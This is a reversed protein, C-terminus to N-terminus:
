GHKREVLRSPVVGSAPGAPHRASGAVFPRARRGPMQDRISERRREPRLVAALERQGPGLRPGHEADLMSERMEYEVWAFLSPPPDASVPVYGAVKVVNVPRAFELPDGMPLIRGDPTLFHLPETM